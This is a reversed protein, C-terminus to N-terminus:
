SESICPLHFVCATVKRPKDVDTSVSRHIRMVGNALPFDILKPFQNRGYRVNVQHQNEDVGAQPISLKPVKELRVNVAPLFEQPDGLGFRGGTDANDGNMVEDPWQNFFAKCAFAGIEHVDLALGVVIATKCPRKPSDHFEDVTLLVLRVVSAMGTSGQKVTCFHIFICPLHNEAMGPLAYGVTHVGM